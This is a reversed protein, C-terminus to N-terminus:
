SEMIFSTAVTNVYTRIEGFFMKEVDHSYSMYARDNDEVVGFGYRGVGNNPMLISVGPTTSGEIVLDDATSPATISGATATQIHLTGDPSTNGIGVKGSTDITLRANSNLDGDSSIKFKDSDSNDLGVVWRQTGTELFQLIADGTGAQEITLGASSDTATTNEYIHTTSVPAAIGIGVKGSTDIYM